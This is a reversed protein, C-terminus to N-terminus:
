IRVPCTAHAQDAGPRFGKRSSRYPSSSPAMPLKRFTVARRSSSAKRHRVRNEPVLDRRTVPPDADLSQGPRKALASEHTAADRRHSQADVHDKTAACIQKWRRVTSDRGTSTARGFHPVSFAASLESSWQCWCTGHFRLP